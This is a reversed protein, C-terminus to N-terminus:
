FKVRPPQYIWGVEEQAACASLRKGQELAERRCAANLEKLPGLNGKAAERAIFEPDFTRAAGQQECAGLLMAAALLGGILLPKANM